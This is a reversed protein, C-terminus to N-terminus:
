ATRKWFVARLMEWATTCIWVVLAIRFCTDIVPVLRTMEAAKGGADFGPALMVIADARLLYAAVVLGVLSAGVDFALRLRRMDPRFLLTWRVALSALWLVAIPLHVTHRAPAMALFAAAPGFV